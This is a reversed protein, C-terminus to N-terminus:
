HVTSENKGQKRDHHRPLYVIFTSGHGERSNLRITGGHRKVIGAVYNLGLGYGKTNHINGHPVRFFKEFVKKQFEAPIGKGRDSFVLEVGLDLSKLQITIQPKGTSYKLSNDLLNYIVHLLHTRDGEIRFDAGETEFSAEGGSKEIVPKMSTLVESVVNKLNVRGTHLAIEERELSAVRLIRNTLLGLRNLEQRAIELYEKTRASNDLTEFRQLSEIAVGATALPTKLEHTMNSVFDNKLVALRQQLRLSRYIFYFSIGIFLLTIVSFVLQPAMERLLLWRLAFPDFRASVLGTQPLFVPGAASLTPEGQIPGGRITQGKLQEDQIPGGRIPEGNMPFLFRGKGSVTDPTIQVIDFPIRIGAAELEIRYARAIESMRVSDAQPLVVFSGWDADPTRNSFAITTHGSDSGPHKISRFFVLSRTSHPLTDGSVSALKEQILSDQLDMVTSRLLFNAQRNFSERADRCSTKLWFGQLVLVLAISGAVLLRTLANKKM